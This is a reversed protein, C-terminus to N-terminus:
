ETYILLAATQDQTIVKLETAAGLDCSHHIPLFTSAETKNVLGAETSYLLHINYHECYIHCPTLRSTKLKCSLKVQTYRFEM